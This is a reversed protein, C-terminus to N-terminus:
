LMDDFEATKTTNYDAGAFSFKPGQCTTKTSSARKRSCLILLPSNTKLIIAQM